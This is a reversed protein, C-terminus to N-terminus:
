QGMSAAIDRASQEIGRRVGKEAEAAIEEASANTSTNIVVHVGEVRYANTGALNNLFDVTRRAEQYEQYKTSVAPAGVIARGVKEGVFDKVKGLGKLLLRPQTTFIKIGRKAWGPLRDYAKTFVKVIADSIGDFINFIFEGLKYFLDKILDTNERWNEYWEKLQSKGKGTMWDYLDKVILIVAYIAAALLVFPLLSALWAAASAVASAISAFRLAVVAATLSIVAGTALASHENLFKLMKVIFGIVKGVAKAAAVLGELVTQLKQRLLDRNAKVWEVTGKAAKILTPLLAAVAENRLGTLAAKLRVQQARFKGFAGITEGGMKAGLAELEAGMARIGESGKDLIPIMKAADDDGFIQSAIGAKIVGDEMQQFSDATELLLQDISKIRGEADTVSVGMKDFAQKMGGGRAADAAQSAFQILAGRLDHIDSGAQQAAYNLTQLRGTSIGLTNSLRQIQTATTATDQILSGFWRVTQFTAIGVLAQKVRDILQDAAKFSRRDSRIGLAGFLDAVRM